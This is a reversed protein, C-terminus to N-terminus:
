ELIGKFFLQLQRKHTSVLGGEWDGIRWATTDPADKMVKKIVDQWHGQYGPIQNMNEDFAMVLGNAWIIVSQIM